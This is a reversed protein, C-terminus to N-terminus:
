AWCPLGWHLRVSSSSVVASFAVGRQSSWTWAKNGLHFKTCTPSAWQPWTRKLLGALALDQPQPSSQMTLTWVRVAFDNREVCFGVRQSPIGEGRWNMVWVLGQFGRTKDCPGFSPIPWLLQADEHSVLAPSTM